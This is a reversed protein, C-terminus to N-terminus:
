PGQTTRESPYFSVGPRVSCGPNAPGPRGGPRIRAVDFCRTYAGPARAPRPVSLASAITICHPFDCRLMSPSSTTRTAHAVGPNAWDVPMTLPLTTSEALWITSPAVTMRSVLSLPARRKLTVVLLFPSYM